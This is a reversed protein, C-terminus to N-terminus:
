GNILFLILLILISLITKLMISAMHSLSMPSGLHHYHYLVQSGICSIYPICTGDRCQSSRRSSPMAVWEVIRSQFIGHISSGPPSYNMFNCLTLCFQLWKAHVCTVFECSFSYEVHFTSLTKEIILFLVFISM